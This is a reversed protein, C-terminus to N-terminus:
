HDIGRAKVKSGTSMMPETVTQILNKAAALAVRRATKATARSKKAAM